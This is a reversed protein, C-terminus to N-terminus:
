RTDQWKFRGWKRFHRVLGGDRLIEMLFIPMPKVILIVGSRLNEIIGKELDIEIADGERVKECAERCEIAPLGVNVANRLFIRAFSEAVVAAVGVHKLVLPAHERSSGCGFNKGAVIIDGPKVKKSFGADAGEMAHKALNDLDVTRFKYKGPIIMDTNVDDGFKWARGRIPHRGM